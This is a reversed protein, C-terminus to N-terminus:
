FLFRKTLIRLFFDLTNELLNCQIGGQKQPMTESEILYISRPTHIHLPHTHNVSSSTIFEILTSGFPFGSLYQRPHLHHYLRRIDQNLEVRLFPPLWGTRWPQLTGPTGPHDGVRGRWCWCCCSARSCWSWGRESSHWASRISSLM